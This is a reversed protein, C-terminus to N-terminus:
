FYIILLQPSQIFFPNKNANNTTKSQKRLQNAVQPIIYKIVKHKPKFNLHIIAVPIHNSTKRILKNNFYNIFICLFFTTIM